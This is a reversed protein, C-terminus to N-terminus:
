SIENAAIKYEVDPTAGASGQKTQETYKCKVESFNLSLSEILRDDGGNSGAEQFSSVFVQKMTIELYDMPKNDAGAKRVLLRAENFHKGGFCSKMLEPSSKDLYKSLSIDQVNVRGTGAGGGTHGSGSNSAGWSWSLIDIENEHGKVMSEGKVPDMKLLIEMAM